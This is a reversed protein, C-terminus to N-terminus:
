YELGNKHQFAEGDRPTVEYLIGQRTIVFIFVQPGETAIARQAKKLELM